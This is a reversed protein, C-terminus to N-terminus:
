RKTKKPVLFRHSLNLGLFTFFLAQVSLPIHQASISTNLLALVFIPVLWISYKPLRLKSQYRYYLAIVLGACISIIVWLLSLKAYNQLKIMVIASIVVSILQVQRFHKPDNLYSMM